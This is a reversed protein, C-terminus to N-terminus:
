KTDQNLSLDGIGSVIDDISAHMIDKLATVDTNPQIHSPAYGALAKNLQLTFDDQEITIELDWIKFIEDSLSFKDNTTLSSNLDSDVDEVKIDESYNPRFVSNGLIKRGVRGRNNGFILNDNDDDDESIDIGELARFIEDKVSAEGVEMSTTNEGSRLIEDATQTSIEAESRKVPFEVESSIIEMLADKISAWNTDSTDVDQNLCSDVWIIDEPSIWTEDSLNSKLPNLIYDMSDKMEDKEIVM